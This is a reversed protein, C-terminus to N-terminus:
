KEFEALTVTDAAEVNGCNQESCTIKTDTSNNNEPCYAAAAYQEFFSLRDFVEATVADDPFLHASPFREWTTRGLMGRVELPAAMGFGSLGSLALLAVSKAFAM